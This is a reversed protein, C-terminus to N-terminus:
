YAILSSHIRFSDIWISVCVCVLRGCFDLGLVLRAQM